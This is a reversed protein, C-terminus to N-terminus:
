NFFLEIVIILELLKNNKKIEQIDEEEFEGDERNSKSKDYACANKKKLLKDKIDIFENELHKFSEKPSHESYIFRKDFNNEIVNHFSKMDFRDTKVTKNITSLQKNKLLPIKKINKSSNNKFENSNHNIAHIIIQKISMLPNISFDSMLFQSFRSLNEDTELNEDYIKNKHFFKIIVEFQEEDNKELLYKLNLFKQQIKEYRKKQSLNEFENDRMLVVPYTYPIDNKDKEKELLTFDIKRFLKKRTNLKRAEETQNAKYRFLLLKFNSQIYFKIFFMIFLILM